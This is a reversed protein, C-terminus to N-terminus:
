RCGAPLPCFFLAWPEAASADPLSLRRFFLWTKAIGNESTRTGFLAPSRAMSRHLLLFFSLSGGPGAFFTTATRSTSLKRDDTSQLPCHKPLGVMGHGNLTGPGEEQKNTQKNTKTTRETSQNIPQNRMDMRPHNDSIIQCSQTAPGRFDSHIASRDVFSMMWSWVFFDNMSLTAKRGGCRRRNIATEARMGVVGSREARVVSLVLATRGFGCCNMFSGFPGSCSSCRVVLRLCWGWGLGVLDGVWGVRLCTFWALLCALLYSVRALMLWSSGMRSRGHRLRLRLQLPLWRFLRATQSRYWVAYLGVSGRVDVRSHSCCFGPSIAVLCCCCALLFVFLRVCCFECWYGRGCTVLVALDVSWTRKGCCGRWKQLRRKEQMQGHHQQKQQQLWCRSSAISRRLAVPGAPSCASHANQWACGSQRPHNTRKKEPNHHSNNGVMAMMTAMLMAMLMVMRCLCCRSCSRKRRGFNTMMIANQVPLSLTLPAPQMLLRQQASSPFVMCWM